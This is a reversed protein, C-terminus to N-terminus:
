RSINPLGEPTTNDNVILNRLEATTYGFNMQYHVADRDEGTWRGGWTFGFREGIPGFPDYNSTDWDISGDDNVIAVDFALGFNHMSHGPLAAPRVGSDRIAQQEEYTRHAQSIRLHINLEDEVANVFDITAQQIFNHLTAIRDNAWRPDDWTYSQIGEDNNEIPPEDFIIDIATAPVDPGTMIAPVDPAPERDIIHITTGYQPTGLGPSEVPCSNFLKRLWGCRSLGFPDTYNMPNNGVYGYLNMSDYYGLPDRSIFRGMGADYYRARYYYLGIESDLRRGTFFFENGVSSATLVNGSGDYISVDGYADYEYHEVINGSDDIMSRVNRQADQFYHYTATTTRMWLPM